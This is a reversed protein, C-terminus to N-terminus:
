KGQWITFLKIIRGSYVKLLLVIFPMNVYTKNLDESEVLGETKLSYKVPVIM